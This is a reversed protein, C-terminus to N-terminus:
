FGKILKLDKCKFKENFLTKLKNRYDLDVNDPVTLIFSLNKPDLLLKRQFFIDLFNGLQEWDVIVGKDIPYHLKLVGRISIADDGIYDQIEPGSMPESIFKSYGIVTPLIYQPEPVGEFGIKTVSSGFDIILLKYKEEAM